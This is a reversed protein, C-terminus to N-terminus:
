LQELEADDLQDFIKTNRVWFGYVYNRTPHTVQFNLLVAAIVDVTYPRPGYNVSPDFLYRITLIPIKLGGHFQEFVIDDLLAITDNAWERLRDFRTEPEHEFKTHDQIRTSGKRSASLSDYASSNSIRLPSTCKGYANYPLNIGEIASAPSTIRLKKL